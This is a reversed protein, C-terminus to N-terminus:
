GDGGEINAIAKEVARSATKASTLHKGSADRYQVSWSGDSHLTLNRFSQGMSLILKELGLYKKKGRSTQM